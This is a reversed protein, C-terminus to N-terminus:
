YDKIFIVTKASIMTLMQKEDEHYPSLQQSTTKSLEVDEMM